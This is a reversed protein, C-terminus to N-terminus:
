SVREQVVRDIEEQVKKQVDPHVAMQYAFSILANTPNEIGAMISIMANGVIENKTM